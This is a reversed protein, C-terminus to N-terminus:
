QRRVLGFHLELDESYKAGKGHLHARKTEPNVENEIAFPQYSTTADSREM